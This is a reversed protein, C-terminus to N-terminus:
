ILSFVNLIMLHKNLFKSCFYPMSGLYHLKGDTSVKSM